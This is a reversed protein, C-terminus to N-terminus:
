QGLAVVYPLLPVRALLRQDATLLDTSMREALAVYVMDYMPHDEHRRSLEWARVLDVPEDALQVPLQRLLAFSMDAEPGTWRDRRIGTLLANGVEQLLLRPALLPAKKAALEALLGRAPGAATSHPAVWDVVISADIVPM